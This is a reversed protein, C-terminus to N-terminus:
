QCLRLPSLFVKGFWNRSEVSKECLFRQGVDRYEWPAQDIDESRAKVATAEYLSYFDVNMYGTHGANVREEPTLFCRNQKTNNKLPSVTGMNAARSDLKVDERGTSHANHKRQWPSKWLGLHKPLSEEVVVGSSKTELPKDVPETINEKMCDPSSLEGESLVRVPEAPDGNAGDDLEAANIEVEEMSVDKSGAEDADTCEILEGDNQISFRSFFADIDDTNDAVGHALSQPSLVREERSDEAKKALQTLQHLHEDDLGPLGLSDEGSEQQEVSMASDECTQEAQVSPANSINNRKKELIDKKYSQVIKDLPLGKRRADALTEALGKGSTVAENMIVDYLDGSNNGDGSERGECEEVFDNQGTGSVSVSGRISRADSEPEVTGVRSVSGISQNNVLSTAQDCLRSLELVDGAIDGSQKTIEGSSKRTGLRPSIIKTSPSASSTPLITTSKNKPTTTNKKITSPAVKKTNAPLPKDEDNNRRGLQHNTIINEVKKKAASSSPANKVVVKSTAIASASTASTAADASTPGAEVKCATEKSSALEDKGVTVTNESSEQAIEKKVAVNNNKKLSSAKLRERKYIETVVDLSIGRKNADALIKGLSMSSDGSRVIQQVQSLIAYYHVDKKVNLDPYPEDTEAQGAGEERVTLPQSSAPLQLPSVSSFRSWHSPSFEVVEKEQQHPPHNIEATTTVNKATSLPSTLESKPTSSKAIPTAAMANRAKALSSQYRTSAQVRLNPKSPSDSINKRSGATTNRGKNKHLSELLNSVHAVTEPDVSSSDTSSGLESCGSTPSTITKKHVDSIIRRARLQAMSPSPAVPHAANVSRARSKPSLMAASESVDSTFSLSPQSLPGLKASSSKLLSAATATEADNQSKETHTNM